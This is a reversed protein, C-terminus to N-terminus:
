IISYLSLAFLLFILLCNICVISKTFSFHNFKDVDLFITNAHTITHNKENNIFQISEVEVVDVLTHLENESKAHLVHIVKNINCNNIMNTIKELFFLSFSLNLISECMFSKESIMIAQTKVITTDIFARLKIEQNCVNEDSVM